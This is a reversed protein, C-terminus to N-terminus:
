PVRAPNDPSNLFDGGKSPRNVIITKPELRELPRKQGAATTFALDTKSAGSKLGSLHASSYDQAKLQLSYRGEQQPELTAPNLPVLQTDIGGDMRRKLELEVALNELKQNSTNRVVGGLTTQGNKLLAEDVVVLAQPPKIEAAPAPPNLAISSDAHRKRLLTYGGFVLGTILLAAVGALVTPLVSRKPEEFLHDQPEIM